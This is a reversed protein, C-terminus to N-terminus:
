MMETNPQEDAMKALFLVIPVLGASAAMAFVALPFVLQYAGLGTYGQVGILIGGLLMPALKKVSGDTFARADILQKPPVSKYLIQKTNDSVTYRFIFDMSRCIFVMRVTQDSMIGFEGLVYAAPTVLLAAWTGAVQLLFPTILLNVFTQGISAVSALNATVQAIGNADLYNALTSNYQFEITSFILVTIFQWVGILQTFSNMYWADADCCKKEVVPGSSKTEEKKSETDPIWRRCIFNPILQL